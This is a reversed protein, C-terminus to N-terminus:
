LPSQAPPPVWCVQAHVHHQSLSYVCWCHCHHLPPPLHATGITYLGYMIYLWHYVEDFSGDTYDAWACESWAFSCVCCVCCLGPVVCPPFCVTPFLKSSFTPTSQQCLAQLLWWPMCVCGSPWTGQELCLCLNTHLACVHMCHINYILTQYCHTCQVATAGTTSGAQGKWVQCFEALMSYREGTQQKDWRTWLKNDLYGMWLATMIAVCQRNMREKKDHQTM